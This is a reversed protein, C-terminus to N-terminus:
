PRVNQASRMGEGCAEGVWDGCCGWGVARGVWRVRARVGGLHTWFRVLGQGDRIGADPRQHPITKHTIINLHLSLRPDGLSGNLQYVPVRRSAVFLLAVRLPFRRILWVFLLHSPPGPLPAARRPSAPRGSCRDRICM